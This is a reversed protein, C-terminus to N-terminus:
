RLHITLDAGFRIGLVECAIKACREIGPKGQNTAAFWGRFELEASMRECRQRDTPYLDYKDQALFRNRYGHKRSAFRELFGPNLTELVNLLGVMVHTNHQYEYAQGHLVFGPTDLPSPQDPGTQPTPVPRSAPSVAPVANPSVNCQSLFDSCADQDPAFGCLYSVKESILEILADDPDTLIEVLAQPFVRQIESLRTADDLDGLANESHQGAFVNQKSLYRELRTCCEEDDQALLDIKYAMRDDVSGTRMPLYFRWEQGNTLVAFGVGAHFCQEFLQYEGGSLNGGASKVEVIVLPKGPERQLVFDPVRYTSDPTIMRVSVQRAVVEPEFVPWGLENLIRLVVGTEIAAENFFRGERLAGKIQPIADRISM